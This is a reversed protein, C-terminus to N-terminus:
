RKTVISQGASKTIPTVTVTSYIITEDELRPESATVTVRQSIFKGEACSPECSNTQLVGRGEAQSQGWATWKLDSVVQNADACTITWTKPKIVRSGDCDNLAAAPVIAGQSSPQEGNKPLSKSGTGVPPGANGTVTPKSGLDTEIRLGSTGCGVVALAAAAALAALSTAKLSYASQVM